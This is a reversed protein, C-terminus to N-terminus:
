RELQALAAKAVPSDIPILTPKRCASCGTKSGTAVFYVLYLLGPLVMILCLVLFIVVSFESLRAPSVSTAGCSTCFWQPTTASAPSLSQGCAWCQEDDVAVTKACHPCGKYQKM